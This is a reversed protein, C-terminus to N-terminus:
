TGIQALLYFLAATHLAMPIYSGVRYLYSTGYIYGMLPVLSIFALALSLSQILRRFRPVSANLLWLAVGGLVFNFATNPAIQNRLLVPDNQMQEPFLVQDFHLPLGCFYEALKVAGILVPILALSRGVRFQIPSQPGTLRCCPLSIGAAIFGLTSAPNMAVLGPIMRKLTENHVIWGFLVVAGGIAVLVGNWWVCKELRRALQIDGAAM